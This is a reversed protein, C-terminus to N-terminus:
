CCFEAPNWRDMATGRCEVNLVGSLDPFPNRTIGNGSWEVGSWEVESWEGESWEVESWEVGEPQALESRSFYNPNIKMDIENENGDRARLEEISRSWRRIRV